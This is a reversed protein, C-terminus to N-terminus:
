QSQMRQRLLVRGGELRRRREGPGACPDGEPHAETAASATASSTIMMMM